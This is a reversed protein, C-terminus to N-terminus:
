QGMAMPDILVKCEHTRKKLREFVEPTQILGITDTVMSQPAVTGSNLMDLSAEFEQQHFFAATLLRIEKSLMDFPVFTDPRSCLGLMVITGKVKVQRVSQAILGPVGVCEFVLDAEGGLARKSAEIPEDLDVVFDTAGMEYAREEQYRNIDQVVVKSAGRRRAWFATALGIPGAGLVLVKDGPEIGSLNVGHLAVSLPEIIAGDANSATKPLLVCQRERVVALEAYGGGQLAMESCWAPQGQQCWHCQGCSKLPVVAVRDGLKLREVGKGLAVVDGAFEHGFIDGCEAGFAADESMHLDSGCIGCRGVQILVEGVGPEPDPVTELALAKHLGQHVVARM